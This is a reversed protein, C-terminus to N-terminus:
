QGFKAQQDHAILKRLLFCRHECAEKIARLIGYTERLQLLNEKADGVSGQQSLLSRIMSETPKSVKWDPHTMLHDRVSIYREGELQEQAAEAERVKRLARETQYAWFATRASSREAEDRLETPDTPIDLEESLDFQVSEGSELIVTVAELDSLYDEGRGKHRRGGFGKM